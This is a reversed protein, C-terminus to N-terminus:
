FLLRWYRALITEGGQEQLQQASPLALLIVTTPLLRDPELELEDQEIHRFLVQRDFFYCRDPPVHFLLYPLGYEARLVRRLLRQSGLVAARDTAVVAQKLQTLDVAFRGSGSGSPGRRHPLAGSPKPGSRRGESRSKRRPKRSWSRSPTRWSRAAC